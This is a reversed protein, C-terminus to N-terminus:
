LDTKKPKPTNAAFIQGRQLGVVPKFKNRHSVGIEVEKAPVRLALRQASVFVVTGEHHSASLGSEVQKEHGQLWELRNIKHFHGGPLSKLHKVLYRWGARHTLKLM